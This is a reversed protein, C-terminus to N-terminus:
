NQLEPLMQGCFPCFKINECVADGYPDTIPLAWGTVEPGHLPDMVYVRIFDDGHVCCQPSEKTLSMM